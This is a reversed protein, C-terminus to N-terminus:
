SFHTADPFFAASADSWYVVASFTSRARAPWVAPEAFPPPPPTAVFGPSLERVDVNEWLTVAAAVAGAGAFGLVLVGGLWVWSDRARPLPERRRQM